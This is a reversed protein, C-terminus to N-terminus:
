IHPPSHELTPLCPSLLLGATMHVTSSDEQPPDKKAESLRQPAASFHEQAQRPRHCHRLPGLRWCREEQQDGSAEGRGEQFRQKEKGRKRDM